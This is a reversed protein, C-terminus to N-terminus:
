LVEAARRARWIDSLGALEGAPFSGKTRYRGPRGDDPWGPNGTLYLADTHLGVLEVGEPLHLAGARVPSGTPADMLRARGRGWVTVALEPRWHARQARSSQVWEWVDPAIERATRITAGDTEAAQLADLSGVMPVNHGEQFTAGITQIAITRVIRAALPQGDAEARNHLTLLRRSLRDFAGPGRGWSWGKRVNITWGCAQALSLEAGSAWTEIKGVPYTWRAGGVRVPLLGPGTWNKPAWALVRWWGPHYRYDSFVIGSGHRTVPGGPLGSLMSLYAARADIEHLEGTREAPDAFFEIRGQGSTRLDEVCQPPLPATHQWSGLVRAVTLGIGSPGTTIAVGSLDSTHEHMWDVAVSAAAADDWGWVAASRLAVTRGDTLKASLSGGAKDDRGPRIRLVPRPAGSEQLEPRM